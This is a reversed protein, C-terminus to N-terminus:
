SRLFKFFINKKLIIAKTPCMEQCCYCRICKNYDFEPIKDVIKIADKPCINKCTGCSTCKDENVYPKATLIKKMLRFIPKPIKDFVTKPMKVKFSLDKVGKLDINKEFSEVIGMKEANKITPVNKINLIRVAIVDLAMADNSAIITNFKRPNGASPGQGDMGTIGDMINLVLGNHKHYIYLDILMESFEMSDPLTAHYGAKINGPITGFLNKVAGTFKTLTHTKMKPLNIIKTFKKMNSGLEFTKFTKGDPNHVKDPM